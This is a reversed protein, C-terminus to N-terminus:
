SAENQMVEEIIKPIDATSDLVFTKFGLRRLTKIRTRQLPRPKMGPAKVEVFGCKGDPLLVLRDPVGDFGPSTFKMALGGSQRVMKTLKREILKENMYKEKYPLANWHEM